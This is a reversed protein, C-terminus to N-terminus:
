SRNTRVHMIINFCINIAQHMEGTLSPRCRFEIRSFSYHQCHIKGANSNAQALSLSTYSLAWYIFHYIICASLNDEFLWDLKM